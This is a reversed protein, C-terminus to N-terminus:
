PQLSEAIRLAEELLLGSELRYTLGGEAWILVHGQVLYRLKLEREGRFALM